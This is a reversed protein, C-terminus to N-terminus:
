ALVEARVVPLAAAVQDMLPEPGATIRVWGPLGLEVGSRVLIGQRLLGGILAEDDAGHHVFLFNGM